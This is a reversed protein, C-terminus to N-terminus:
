FPQCFFKNFPKISFFYCIVEGDSAFEGDLAICRPHVPGYFLHSHWEQWWSYFLNSSFSVRICDHMCLFPLDSGLQFVRSAEMVESIGERPKLTNKFFLQPPLQGFGFQHAIFSPNYFEYTPPNGPISSGKVMKGHSHRFETPLVCPKIFSNFIAAATENSCGFEFRFKFPFTLGDDENYPLWTLVVADFGRYFKKFLHGVDFDIIIASAAEGYSTCQRTREEEGRYEEDFNSSHFSLDRLDPRVIKHM